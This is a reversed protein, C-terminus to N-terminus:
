RDPTESPSRRRGRALWVDLDERRYLVIRPGSKTYMPGNGRLRMKALTSIALGVYEAAAPARLNRRTEDNNQM